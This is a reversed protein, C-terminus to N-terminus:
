FYLTFYIYKVYLILYFEREKSKAYMIAICQYKDNAFLSVREANKIVIKEDEVVSEQHVPGADLDKLFIRM